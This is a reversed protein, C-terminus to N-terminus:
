AAPASDETIVAWAFPGQAGTSTTVTMLISIVDDATFTTVSLTGDKVLKDADAHTISIPSSLVTTGNKKLDFTIGTTTGTDNLLAHFGRIDGDGSAVYRLIEKTTPTGGIVFGFDTEVIKIFQVKDAKLIDVSQNSFHRDKISGDEVTLTGILKAPM